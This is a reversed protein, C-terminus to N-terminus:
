NHVSCREIGCRDALTHPEAVLVAINIEDNSRVELLCKVVQILGTSMALRYHEGDLPRQSVRVAKTVPDVTAIDTTAGSQIIM